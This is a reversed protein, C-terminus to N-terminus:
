RYLLLRKGFSERYKSPSMGATKKFANTFNHVDSFGVDYAIQSITRNTDTLAAMAHEMKQQLIYQKMSLGSQKKFFASLYKANYGYHRAIEEMRLPESIYYQIFDTIDNFLQNQQKEKSKNQMQCSIEGLISLTLATNLSNNHYRRASDQLQKMLIIVRDPSFLTGYPPIQLTHSTAGDHKEELSHSEFHLWYFACSSERYGYQKPTPPMLLYEGPSVAYKKQENAIYLIGDTVVMLEYNSLNRSLHMWNEVPAQFKGSWAFDLTTKDHYTFIIDNFDFVSMFIGPREFFL